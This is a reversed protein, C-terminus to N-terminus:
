FLRMNTLYRKMNETINTSGYLLNEHGGGRFIQSNFAETGTSYFSSVSFLNLILFSPSEAHFHEWKKKLKRVLTDLQLAGNWQPAISVSFELLIINPWSDISRLKEEFSFRTHYFSSPDSGSVYEILVYSSENIVASKILSAIRKQLIIPYWSGTNSSGICLM